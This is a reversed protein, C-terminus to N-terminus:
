KSTRSGDEFARRTATAMKELDLMSVGLGFAVEELAGYIDALECLALIRNEQELAEELEEVEEHIKSPKGFVGQTQIPRLHYGMISDNPKSRLFKVLKLDDDFEAAIYGWGSRPEGSPISGVLGNLVGLFGVFGAPGECGPKVRVMQQDDHFVEAQITPHDVTRRSCGVRSEILRGIDDRVEPHEILKNLRAIIEDALQADDM